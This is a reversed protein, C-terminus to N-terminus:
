REGREKNKRSHCSLILSSCKGEESLDEEEDWGVMASKMQAPSSMCFRLSLCMLASDVLVQRKQLCKAVLGVTALM